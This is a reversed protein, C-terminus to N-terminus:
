DTTTSVQSRARLIKRIFYVAILTALATFFVIKFQKINALVTDGYYAILLVQTPVSILVALGDVLVFKWTPVGAIGCSMHGPFRIGPTFRFIGCAWAGYKKTWKEIKERAAPTHFRAFPRSALIRVGYKKGILFVTFDSIFCSVTAVIAATPAHILSSATADAPLFEPNRALYALLGLSLLTVEEPIPLGFSSLFTMAIVASYVMLPQDAYQSFWELIAAQSFDM